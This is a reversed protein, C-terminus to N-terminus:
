RAAAQPIALEQLRYIKRDSFLEPRADYFKKVEETTPKQAQQTLQDIYAQSLIQRKSAEIAQMIRPDRDLKKEIAKQVLLEQDVMRELVQKTVAKQQDENLNRFQAMANNLQHVTIEEKNM